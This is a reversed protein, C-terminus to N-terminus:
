QCVRFVREQRKGVKCLSMHQACKAPFVFYRHRGNSLSEIIDLATELPLPGEDLLTKTGITNAKENLMVSLEDLSRGVALRNHPLDKLSV